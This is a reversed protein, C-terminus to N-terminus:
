CASGFCVNVLVEVCLLLPPSASLVLEDMLKFQLMLGLVGQRVDRVEVCIPTATGSLEDERYLAGKLTHRGRVM